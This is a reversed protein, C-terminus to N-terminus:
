KQAALQAKVEAKIFPKLDDEIAQKDADYLKSAEGNPKVPEPKTNDEKKAETKELAGNDAFIYETGDITQKGTVMWANDPDFYYKKGDIKQWGTLCWANEKDMYYWCNNIQNWGTKAAGFTGDHQDNLFYWKDNIKQWGSELNGSGDLYYWLKDVLRWANKVASGNEYYQWTDGSGQWGDTTRYGNWTIGLLDVNMDQKGGYNSYQWIAVGDMSPFYGYNPTISLGPQYGAVWISNPFVALVRGVNVNDHMYPKYSYLMPTYGANKIQRMGFIINDTNAEINGSAGDEYDLAVIAGKPQQLRPLFYNLMKQTQSQNSGTQMWIYTHFRWGRSKAQQAHSSYTAQEYIWGNVSGGIQSIAFSDHGTNNYLLPQYKSYDGGYSVIAATM